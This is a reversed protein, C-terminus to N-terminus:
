EWHPAKFSCSHLFLRGRQSDTKGGRGSAPSSPPSPPQLRMRNGEGEGEGWLPSPIAIGLSTGQLQVLIFRGGSLSDLAAVTQAMAVPSRMFIPLIGSGLRIKQTQAALAALISIGDPGTTEPAWVGSYGLEGSRKGLEVFDRASTKPLLPLLIEIPLTM